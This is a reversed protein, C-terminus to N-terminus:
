KVLIMKRQESFNGADMKYFYIGSAYKSADWSVEHIGKTQVSNVLTEIEKGNADYIKVVINSEIPLYYKITTAPNFPNPFNQDLYFKNPNLIEGKKFNDGDESNCCQIKITDLWDGQATCVCATFYTISSLELCNQPVVYYSAGPTLNVWQAIDMCGDRQTTVTGTYTNNLDYIDYTEQEGCCNCFVIKCVAGQSYIESSMFLSTLFLLPLILSVLFTKPKM